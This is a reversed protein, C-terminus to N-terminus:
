VVRPLVRSPLVPSDWGRQHQSDIEGGVNISVWDTSCALSRLTLLITFSFARFALRATFFPMLFTLFNATLIYLFAFDAM